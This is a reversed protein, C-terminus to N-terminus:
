NVYVVLRKHSYPEDEESSPEDEESVQHDDLSDTQFLTVAAQGQKFSVLHNFKDPLIALILFTSKLRKYFANTAVAVLCPIYLFKYLFGKWDLKSRKKKRM